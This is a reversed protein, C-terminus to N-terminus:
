RPGSCCPPRPAVDKAKIQWKDVEALFLKAWTERSALMRHTADKLAATGSFRAEYGKIVATAITADDFKAAFPLIGQRM